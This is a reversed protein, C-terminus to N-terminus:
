GIVKRVVQLHSLTAGQNQELVRFGAEGAKRRLDQDDLLECVRDYLDNLDQAIYLSGQEALWGSIATFNFLQPGTVIPLKVAAPELLNHGGVPVFSGGVFAIDSLAYYLYLEGMSDGLFIKTNIDPLENKSRRAIEFGRRQCLAAVEDFRHPHRPVLVLLLDPYKNRLRTFVDLLQEEENAHTSAAVLVQTHPIKNRLSKGLNIQTTPIETDFKLNGAVIIRDETIGLQKFHDADLTSQAAVTKINRLFPAIFSSIRQYGQLSKPSLRANAIIIPVNFSPALHLLNPWMETEMIIGIVPKVYRFFRKIAFPIDYPVFLQIIKDDNKWASQVRLAGTATMNTVVIPIEPYESRLKKLLPDAAVAEGYSVAHLWICPTKFPRSNYFGFREGVRKRVDPNKRNRILLRIIIIPLLFYFLATYVRRMKHNCYTILSRM